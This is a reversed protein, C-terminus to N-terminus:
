EGIEVDSGIVPRVFEIRAGNLITKGGILIREDTSGNSPM